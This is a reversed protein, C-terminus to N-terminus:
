ALEPLGYLGLYYRAHNEISFRKRVFGLAVDVRAWFEAEPLVMIKVIASALEDTSFEGPVFEAFGDHAILRSEGVDTVVPLNGCAVGELLSKSPYNSYMQLSLFVKSYQLIKEPANDFGVVIDIGRYEEGSVLTRLEQELPGEGLIFFKIDGVGRERLRAYISPIARAFRLVNKPDGEAFRGCFVIWNRKERSYVFNELRVFSGPNLVAKNRSARKERFKDFNDPNLVDLKSAGLLCLWFHSKRRLGGTDDEFFNYSNYSMLLEQRLLTHVLPLGNHPYHFISGRPASMAVRCMSAILSLPHKGPIVILNENKERVHKLYHIKRLQEFLARGVVLKINDYGGHEQLHDWLETLRKETGGVGSSILVIYVQRKSVVNGEVGDCTPRPLQLESM